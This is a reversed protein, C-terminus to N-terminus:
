SFDEKPWSVASRALGPTARPLMPPKPFLSPRSKIVLGRHMPPLSQSLVSTCLTSACRALTLRIPPSPPPLKLPDSKSVLSTTMRVVHGGCRAHDCRPQLLCHSSSCSGAFKEACAALVGARRCCKCRRVEHCVCCQRWKSGSKCCDRWAEDEIESDGKQLWRNLTTFDIKSETCSFKRRSNKSM